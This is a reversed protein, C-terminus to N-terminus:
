QKTMQVKLLKPESGGKRLFATRLKGHSDYISPSASRLFLSMLPVTVPLAGGEWKQYFGRMLSLWM